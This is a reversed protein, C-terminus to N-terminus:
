VHLCSFYPVTPTELNNIEKKFSHNQHLPAPSAKAAKAAKAPAKARGRTVKPSPKVPEPTKAAAKTAKKSAKKPTAAAAKPAVKGRRTVKPSPKPTAVKPSAPAAKPAAKSRGGRTKKPAPSAVAEPEPAARKTGEQPSSCTSAEECVQGSIRPRRQVLKLQSQSLNLQLLLRQQDGEGLERQLLNPQTAEKSVKAARKSVKPKVEKVPTEKAPTKM